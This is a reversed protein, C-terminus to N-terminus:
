ARRRPSRLLPTLVPTEAANYAQTVDLCANFITKRIVERPTSDNKVSRHLYTSM